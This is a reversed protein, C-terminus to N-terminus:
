PDHPIEPDNEPWYGAVCRGRNVTVRFRGAEALELLAEANASLCLSTTVRTDPDTHCGQRAMSEIVDLEPGPDLAEVLAQFPDKGYYACKRAWWESWAQTDTSEPPPEPFPTKM